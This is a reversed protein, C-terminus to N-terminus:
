LTDNALQIHFRTYQELQHVQQTNLKDCVFGWHTSVWDGPKLGKALQENAVIVEREGPVLELKGNIYKLLKSQTKIRADVIQSRHDIVQGWTILCSDMTEVTHPVTHHGTRTFVNLVHFSHHLRARQDIKPLLWKLEKRPIRKPLRQKIVLADHVAHESLRELLENGVWYAEVVRQDFPDKIQNALAIAQLYPYLTEFKGLDAV